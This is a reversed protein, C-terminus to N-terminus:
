GYSECTVTGARGPRTGQIFGHVPIKGPAQLLHRALDPLFQWEVGEASAREILSKFHSFYVNGEFEAHVTWVNITDSKFEKLTREVLNEPTVGDGGSRGPPGALAPTAPWALMEDWTPLTTPIELTKFGGEGPSDDRRRAFSPFYPGEGRSDSHYLLKMPEMARWTGLGAQWGPAAFSQPLEGFVAEYVRTTKELEERARAEDWHAARDHWGIHDFGHPSVEFGMTRFARLREKFSTGMPRAPLLTGSLVTRWGYVSLASTRQMKKLFGRHRFVRSAAWGSNDPGLSVFFSAPIHKSSLFAALRSAGDDIGRYTDVDIKLALKM